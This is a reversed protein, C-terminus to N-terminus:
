RDISDSNPPTWRRIKTPAFRGGELNRRTRDRSVGSQFLRARQARRTRRQFHTAPEVKSDEAVGPQVSNFSKDNEIDTDILDARNPAPEDKAAKLQSQLSELDLKRPKNQTTSSRSLSFKKEPDRSSETASEANSSESDSKPSETRNAIAVLRDAFSPPIEIAHSKMSQSRSIEKSEDDFSVKAVEPFDNARENGNGNKELLRQEVGPLLKKAAQSYVTGGSAGDFRSILSLKKTPGTVNGWPIWFSYSHGLRCKSYHKELNAADFVYKRKPAASSRDDDDFVYVSVSGDVKIPDRDEGYFFVRGGFGRVGPKGPEHRITDTWITLIRDPIPTTTEKQWPLSKKMNLTSCGACDILFIAAFISFAVNAIRNNM